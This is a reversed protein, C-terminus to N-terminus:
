RLMDHRQVVKTWAAHWQQATFRTSSEFMTPLPFFHPDALQLAFLEVQPPTLRIAGSKSDVTNHNDDAFVGICGSSTPILEALHAITNSRNIDILNLQLNQRRSRSVLQIASLSNGGLQFFTAAPSISSPDIRLTEAIIGILRAEGPSLQAIKQSDNSPTFHHRPLAKRDVKGVRTLPLESLEVLVSPVMYHPLRSRLSDMIAAVRGSPPIIYGILHSEDQVVVCAQDVAPHRELASEIEGLEIRFGRLKVQNDIRGLCEIQGNPLWRALDGSQYIREGTFPSLIFKEQTLAPHNLYGRAVGRGGLYLQGVAGVPVLHLHADLIIGTANPLPSGIPIIAKNAQLRTWHSGVAVETPGYWNILDVSGAWKNVIGQNAPEGTIIVQRLNPFNAPDFGSLLSPTCCARTAQALAGEYDGQNVLVTGGFSLTTWIESLSADFTPTVLTPTIAGPAMNTVRGMGQWHNALAHHEHMVGKPTGTSGSTYIIAALHSPDIAPSPYTNAQSDALLTAINIPMTPITLGLSDLPLLYSPKGMVAIAQTDELILQHRKLPYDPALVVFACGTRWIALQGVILEPCNDAVLAVIQDSGCATKLALSYALRNAAMDLQTYTYHQDSYTIATLQPKSECQLKFLDHALARPANYPNTAWGGLLQAREPSTLIPIDTLSSNTDAELLAGLVTVYHDAFSNVFEPSFDLSRYTVRFQVQNDQTHAIVVLPFDAPDRYSDMEMQFPLDPNAPAEPYNELVLLTNFLTRQQGIGSWRHIDTLRCHEFGYARTSAAYVTQLIDQVSPGNGLAVRCPITNICAGIISEIGSLPVNRGSVVVGFIPDISGTHHHLVAAMTVRLLTSLTVGHGSIFRNIQDLIQASKQVTGYFANDSAGLNSILPCHHAEVLLSPEEVGSFQGAWFQEAQDSSHELIHDVFDRYQVTRPLPTESYNCQVSHLLLGISWGDLLAHHASIMFRHINPATRFLGFRIWPRDLTFAATREQLFFQECLVDLQGGEWSWIHWHANFTEAVIQLNKDALCGSATLFRTRLISHNRATQEWARHFQGVNLQGKITFELQVMYAAPDQLTAFLLGEQVPLCPYIDQIDALTLDLSPLDDQVMKNFDSETLQASSFDSATMIAPVPVTKCELILAELSTLWQDVVKQITRLHHLENSYMISLVLGDDITYDCAVSLARNFREDRDLGDAWGMEIHRPRWFADQAELQESRGSYNFPIRHWDSSPTGSTEPVNRDVVPASLSPTNKLYRQLSYPFGHNPISRMRQKALALTRLNHSNGPYARTQNLDFVSPYISTFWGVTRSIDIASDWTRRGHGELELEIVSIELTAQLSLLLSAILFEQPSVGVAPAVETFLADSLVHGLSARQVEFSRYTATPTASQNSMSAFPYDLPIPEAPTSSIPGVSDPLAQAYAHVRTAWERFPMTKAPLDRNELLVELDELIIRWSVFDVAFHHITLYVHQEGDLTLLGCVMTPGQEISITQQTQRVWTPYEDLTLTAEEISLFQHLWSATDSPIPLVRQQWQDHALEIRIRLIDHHTMLAILAQTLVTSTLTQRCKLLMSQNFQNIFRYEKLAFRQVATWPIPGVPDVYLISILDESDIFRACQGMAALQAHKLIDAVSLQLGLRKCRNSFQIASISDGGLQLFSAFPTIKQPDVKLTDALAERMLLFIPSLSEVDIAEDTT